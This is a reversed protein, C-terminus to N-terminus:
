SDRAPGRQHKRLLEELQEAPVPRCHLYGQSQHCKLARLVDFQAQTEVGEAVTTLNFAAALGIVSSVLTASARNEPLGSIFSRDIKLMDVPLQSLLGLASYGTGFDDIAIRIGADRLERLKRSTGELDQLFGSETIEIDIGYGSNAWGDLASLVQEVFARRRIQLTSVNVAVRVPGLRLSRWRVSDQAARRLVWEGVPVIMGSSELLPLFQGPPVIGKEPDRWRILAEVSEIRETAIELQPQYYLLFQEEDLAVRLKHELALREAVESRVTYQLFQEGSEKAQKLAAEAKQVLTNGDEGDDPARAIGFKFSIRISRGEIAFVDNFVASALISPVAEESRVLQPTVLVFTGSGLYGICEDNDIFNRLREAVRQLLLDGVHHGFSDNVNSLHQVDFAVVTPASEPVVSNRLHRDLRECFLSRKALGTLPDFYALFQVTDEKQLYQLALSLSATIDQLLLLEEEHVTSSQRSALMLAGIPKGEVILPLVVLSTFGMALLRSRIAVPPESKSLDNCVVVEGTRLARGTLSTDPETGDGIEFILPMPLDVGIGTQHWPRAHKGSSDVLSLVARDYGAVDTALRCTERFLDDRDRIRVVAANIGSQMQLVRTLRAIREQQQKRETFDRHTGRYGLAKGSQTFLAALNGELWRYEGDRHKWRAVTGRVVRRDPNLGSLMRAYGERDDPHIFDNFPFGLLDRASFGLIGQVSRSCFLFRGDEGLEWIWDQATDVIDRLRQENERIRKEARRRRRRENAERVARKVVGPLRAPNTKLVYDVAGRRLADIAREEGITGSLFVFPISPAEHVAINLAALGDFQPLTFDSLIIHPRFSTLAARYDPETDVVEHTISLGGTKLMRAALQAETAVDEVMLVRLPRRV